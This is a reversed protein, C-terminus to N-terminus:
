PRKPSMVTDIGHLTGNSTPMNTLVFGAGDITGHGATNSLVLKRGDLATLTHMRLAQEVTYNGRVVHHLVFQKLKAKDGHIAQLVEAPMKNFAADTPAFVTFPGSGKLNFTLDADRVLMLFTDFQHVSMATDILDRGSPEQPHRALSAPVAGGVVACILLWKLTKMTTNGPAERHRAAVPDPRQRAQRSCAKSASRIAQDATEPLGFPVEAASAIAAGSAM